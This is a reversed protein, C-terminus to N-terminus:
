EYAVRYWQDLRRNDKATNEGINAECRCIEDETREHWRRQLYWGYSKATRSKKSKETANSCM